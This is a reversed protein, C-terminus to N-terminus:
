EQAQEAVAAEVGSAEGLLALARPVRPGPRMMVPDPLHVVREQRVAPLSEFREWYALVQETPVNLSVDIVAEPAAELVAEVDLVPYATAQDGVANTLGSLELLEAGFSGPGAVVLPERDYVMLARMPREGRAARLRESVAQLEGEVRARLREGREAQGMWGGLIEFSRMAAELDDGRVFAYSIGAQDLQDAIHHDAGAQVGVVLDPKLALIAELDPDLMGGIKSRGTAEAPYDCYRTVGVVQEGLGLAFLVETTSPAMSVVREPTSPLQASHVSHESVVRAGPESGPAVSPQPARECAGM